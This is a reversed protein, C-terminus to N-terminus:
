LAERASQIFEFQKQIEPDKSDEVQKSWHDLIAKESLESARVKDWVKRYLEKKDLIELIGALPAHTMLAYLFHKYYGEKSGDWCFKSVLLELLKELFDLLTSEQTNFFAIGDFLAAIKKPHFTVMEPNLDKSIKDIVVSYVDGLTEEADAQYAGTVLNYFGQSSLVSFLHEPTARKLLADLLPQNETKQAHFLVQVTVPYQHFPKMKEYFGEEMLYFFAPDNRINLMFELPTEYESDDVEILTNPLLGKDMLDKLQKQTDEPALDKYLFRLDYVTFVKKQEM